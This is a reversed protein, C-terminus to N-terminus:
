QFYHCRGKRRTVLLFLAILGIKQEAPNVRKLSKETFWKSIHEMQADTFAM